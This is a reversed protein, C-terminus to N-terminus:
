IEFRTYREPPQAIGELGGSPKRSLNRGHTQIPPPPSEDDEREDNDEELDTTNATRNRELKYYDDMMDLDVIESSTTSNRKHKTSPAAIKSNLHRNEIIPLKNTDYKEYNYYDDMLDLDIPTSYQDEPTTSNRQIISNNIRGALSACTPIYLEVPSGNEWKVSSSVSRHDHVSVDETEDATTITSYSDLSWSRARSSRERCRRRHPTPQREQQQKRMQHEERQKKGYQKVNNDNDKDMKQQDM